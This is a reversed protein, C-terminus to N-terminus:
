EDQGVVGPTGALAAEVAMTATAAILELDQANSKASRGCYGSKQWM